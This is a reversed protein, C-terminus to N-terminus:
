KSYLNCWLLSTKYMKSIHALNNRIWNNKLCHILPQGYERPMGRVCCTEGLWLPMYGPCTGWWNQGVGNKGSTLETHCLWSEFGRGQPQINPRTKLQIKPRMLGCLEPRIRGVWQLQWYPRHPREPQTCSSMCAEVAKAMRLHWGGMLVLNCCRCLHGAGLLSMISFAINVYFICETFLSDFIFPSSCLLNEKKHWSSWFVSILLKTIM